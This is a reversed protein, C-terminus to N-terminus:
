WPEGDVQGDASRVGAYITSGGTSWWACQVHADEPEVEVVLYTHTGALNENFWEERLRLLEIEKPRPWVLPAAPPAPPDALMVTALAAELADLRALIASELRRHDRTQYTGEPAQATAEGWPGAAVLLGLAGVLAAIYVRRMM